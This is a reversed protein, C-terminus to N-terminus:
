LTHGGDVKLIQGTIFASDRSALFAAAHAIDEPTGVREVPIRHRLDKETEAPIYGTQIPGPAIANVTIGAPGLEIASARTFAEIAAKSSGYAVQGAFAAAADTSFNIIRGWTGGRARLRRAFEQTLLVTAGINVAYTEAFDAASVTLTTDDLPYHSACNVLVDCPGLQQEVHDLISSAAENGDRLDVELSVASGPLGGLDRLVQDASGARFRQYLPDGPEVAVRAEEDTVGWRTPDLRLYTIMVQAGLDVFRRAIAAGIGMPNNAGTIVAIAGELPASQSSSM